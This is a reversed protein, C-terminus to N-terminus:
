DKKVSFPGPAERDEGEDVGSGIDEAGSGWDLNDEGGGM